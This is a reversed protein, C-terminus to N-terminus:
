SCEGIIVNGNLTILGSNHNLAPNTANFIVIQFTDNGAGQGGDTFTYIFQATGTINGGPGPQQLSVNATGSISITRPDSTTNCEITLAALQEPTTTLNLQV